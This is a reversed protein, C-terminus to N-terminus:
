CCDLSITGHLLPCIEASDKQSTCLDNYAGKVGGRDFNVELSFYM